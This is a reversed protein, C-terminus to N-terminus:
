LSPTRSNLRHRQRKGGGKSERGRRRTCPWGNGVGAGAVVQFGRRGETAAGRSPPAATAAAAVVVAASPKHQLLPHSRLGELTSTRSKQLGKSQTRAANAYGRVIVERIREREIEKKRRKLLPFQIAITKFLSSPLLLSHLIALSIRPIIKKLAGRPQTM